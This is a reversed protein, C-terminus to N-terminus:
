RISQRWIEQTLLRYTWGSMTTYDLEKTLRGHVDYEYKYLTKDDNKIETINGAKDYTYNINKDEGYFKLNLITNTSSKEEMSSTIIDVNYMNSYLKTVSEKGDESITSSINDNNYLTTKSLTTNDETLSNEIVSTYTTNEEKLNKFTYKKTTKTM